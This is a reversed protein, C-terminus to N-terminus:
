DISRIVKAPSGYALVNPPISKTVVSGMGIISNEGIEVQDTITTGLNIMVNDHVHVRSAINVGPGITVYKGITCHHGITCNRNLFVFDGLETFPAIIVNPGFYTGSRVSSSNPIISSPHLSKGYDDLVIKFQAKFFDFVKRKSAPSVLSNYYVSGPAPNWVDFHTVALKTEPLAFSYDKITNKGPDVNTIIEVDIDAGQSSYFNELLLSLGFNHHGLIVIKKNM